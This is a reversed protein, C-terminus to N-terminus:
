RRELMPVRAVPHQLAQAKDLSRTPVTLFALTTRLCTVGLLGLMELANPSALPILPSRGPFTASMPLVDPLNRSIQLFALRSQISIQPITPLDAHPIRPMQLVNSSALPFSSVNPAFGLLEFIILSSWPLKLVISPFRLRPFKLPVRPFNPFIQPVDPFNSSMKPFPM